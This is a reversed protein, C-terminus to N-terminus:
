GDISVGDLDTNVLERRGTVVAAIRAPEEPPADSRWVVHLDSRVLLYNREYVARIQPDAIHMEAVPAGTARLAAALPALAAQDDGLNLLTFGETPIRDYLADNPALWVHPLYAGPWTSPEYVTISSETAPGEESAIVRSTYRYGRDAGHMEYIRRSEPDARLVFLQRAARGEPTDEHILSSYATRWAIPGDVAWAAAHCNRWTVPRREEDYSELLEPGGWGKIAAEIKWALNTADGIGTNMGLGGAPMYIHNSDGALFVRGVSHRPAVAMHQTWDGVFLIEPNIDLGSVSRLLAVPDFGEETVTHLAMHKMDDQVVIVGGAGAYAGLGALCYHRAFGLECKEFFDDCRFFINTLKGLNFRGELTVDIAERVASAAGDCGVLYHARVATEAGDEGRITATVGDDDQELGLFETSHRITVNPLTRLEDLLLPELTYISILQYPERPETGDTCAAIRARYEDVSPYKQHVLPAETLSRAIYVDMPMDAPLGAARIRDVMGLRRFLELTRPNSREMRPLRVPAPNKEILLVNVGRRALDLTTTLGVPGAGVVVVDTEIM